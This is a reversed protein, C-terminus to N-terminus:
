FCNPRPASFRLPDGRPLFLACYRSSLHCSIVLCWSSSLSSFSLRAAPVCGALVFVLAFLSVSSGFLLVTFWRARLGTVALEFFRYSLAFHASPIFGFPLLPRARAFVDRPFFFAPSSFSRTSSPNLLPLFDLLSFSSDPAYHFVFLSALLPGVLSRLSSSPSSSSSFLFFIRSSSHRPLRLPPVPPDLLLPLLLKARDLPDLLPSSHRCSPFLSLSLSGAFPLALRLPRRRASVVPFVTHISFPPENWYVLLPDALGVALGGSNPM